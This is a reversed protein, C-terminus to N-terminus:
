KIKLIVSDNVDQNFTQNNFDNFFVDNMHPKSTYGNEIKPYVSDNDWMASPHLSTADFDKM